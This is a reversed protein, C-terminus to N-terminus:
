FEILAGAGWGWDPSAAGLGKKVSVDLIMHRNVEFTIGALAMNQHELNRDPNENGTFETVFHFQKTLAYDLALGYFYYDHLDHNKSDTVFTYGCQGHVTFSDAVAKSIVPSLSFETDGRGLGTDYDGSNLKVVGKMTLLPERSEYNEWLLLYKGVLNIDGIGESRVGQAKHIIYPIEVSLEMTEAPGYIPAVFLLVQDFDGNKWTCFDYGIEAQLVGKGAVGADETTFPRYALAPTAGILIFLLVLIVTPKM